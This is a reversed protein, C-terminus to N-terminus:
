RHHLTHTLWDLYKLHGPEPGETAAKLAGLQASEGIEYTALALHVCELVGSLPSHGSMALDDSNHGVGTDALRAQEVFELGSRLRAPSHQLSERDGVAFGRSIQRYEFQQRCVELNAPVIILAFPALPDQALY